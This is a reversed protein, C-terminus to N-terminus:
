TGDDVELSFEIRPQEGTKCYRKRVICTTVQSDNHFVLPELSDSLTKGYNDWDPEIVPLVPTKYALCLQHIRKCTPSDPEARYFTADVKVGVHEPFWAGKGEVVDKIKREAFVTRDPTYAWTNGGKMTVRPREKGVPTMIVTFRFLRPM